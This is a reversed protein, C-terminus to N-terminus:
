TAPKSQYLRLSTMAGTVIRHQKSRCRGRSRALADDIETGTHTSGTKGDCRADAPDVEHQDLTIHRQNVHRPYVEGRVPNGPM